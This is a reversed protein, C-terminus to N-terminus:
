AFTIKLRSFIRQIPLIYSFSDNAAFLIGIVNNNNDFVAAGSDGPNSIKCTKIIGKFEVKHNPDQTTPYKIYAKTFHSDLFGNQRGSTRGVLSVKYDRRVHSLGVIIKSKLFIETGFIRNALLNNDTLEAIAVDLGDGLCGERINALVTGGNDEKSPSIVEFPAGNQVTNVEFTGSKIEGPCLVHFCSLLFVRRDNEDTKKVRLGISGTADSGSRSCSLGLLKTPQSAGTTLVDKPVYCSNIVTVGVQNVDTPITYTEGDKAKYDIFPPIRKIEEKPLFKQEVDFQICLIETLVDNVRKRGISISQFPGYQLEWEESKEEIAELIIEEPVEKAAQGGAAAQQTGTNFPFIFNKLRDLLEITRGSFFGLVFAIVITWHGFYINFGQENSFLNPSFYIVIVVFPTYFLKAWYAPFEDEDVTGKRSHEAYYYLFSSLTGFLAWFILEIISIDNYLWFFSRKRIGSQTIVNIFHQKQLLKIMSRLSDAYVREKSIEYKEDLYVIAKNEFTASDFSNLVSIDEVTPKNNIYGHPIALHLVVYLIALLVLISILTGLFYEKSLLKFKARAKNVTRTMYCLQSAHRRNVLTDVGSHKGTLYGVICGPLVRPDNATRLIGYLCAQRPDTFLHLNM